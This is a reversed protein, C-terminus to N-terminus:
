PRSTTASSRNYNGNRTPPITLSVYASQPTGSLAAYEGSLQRNQADTASFYVFQWSGFSSVSWSSATASVASFGTATLSLQHSSSDATFSAGSTTFQLTTASLQKCGLARQTIM